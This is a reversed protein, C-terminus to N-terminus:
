PFSVSVTQSQFGETDLAAVGYTVSGNQVANHDVYSTMSSDIRDIFVGNRYIVYAFLNPDSSAMWSLTNFYETLVGFDTSSQSVMPMSPALVASKTGTVAQIITNMGDFAEWVAAANITTGLLTAGVHPDKNNTGTSITQPVSWFNGRTDNINSEASQITINMSDFAMFAAVTNVSSAVAVNGKFAYLSTSIDAIDSWNQGIQITSTEFQYTQGNFSNSWFAVANGISDFAVRAELLAPNVDGSPSLIIPTSWSMGNPMAAVAAVVNSYVSGSVDYQFFIVLANGNADVAVHPYNGHHPTGSAVTLPLASWVGGVTYSSSLVADGSASSHWVAIITGDNGAAIHPNDSSNGSVTAVIGWAMGFPKTASEIVNSRVWVAIADGGTTITVQPDSATSGSVTASTGWSGGSAQFSSQVMNNEIWVAVADGNADVALKPSTAGSGSLTTTSGWSGMVSHSATKVFGGELWLAIANGSSDMGISPETANVSMGSIQTPPSSWMIDSASLNLFSFFTFFLVAVKKVNM